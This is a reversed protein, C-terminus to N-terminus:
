KTKWIIVTATGNGMFMDIEKKIGPPTISTFNHKKIGSLELFDNTPRNNTKASSISKPATKSDLLKTNM